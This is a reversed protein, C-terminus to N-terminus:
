IEGIVGDLKAEWLLFDAYISRIQDNSVEKPETTDGLARDLLEDLMELLQQCSGKMATMREVNVGSLMRGAKERLGQIDSARQLVEKVAALAMESHEAFTLGDHPWDKVSLTGAGPHAPTHTNTTIETVWDFSKIVRGGDKYEFNKPTVLYQFSNGVNKGASRREQAIKREQQALETSHYAFLYKWGYGDEDLKEIWGIPQSNDRGHRALVVGDKLFAPTAEKFAGPLIIDKVRDAKNFVAAYGEQIGNGNNANEKIEV